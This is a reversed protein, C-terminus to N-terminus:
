QPFIVTPIQEVEVRGYVFQGAGNKRYVLFAQVAEGSALEAVVHIADVDESAGRERVRVDRYLAAARLGEAAVRRRLATTLLTWGDVGALAAVGLAYKGTAEVVISGPLFTGQEELAGKAVDLALEVLQSLECTIECRDDKM